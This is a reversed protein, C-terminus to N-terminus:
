IHILSLKNDSWLKELEIKTQNFLDENNSM